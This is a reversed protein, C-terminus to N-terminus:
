IRKRAPCKTHDTFWSCNKCGYCKNIPVGNLVHNAFEPDALLGKGIGAFDVCDNEILFQAQEETRIENVAVVPIIVEKKIRCGSYTMRSCPFGEPVIHTPPNMGFSINLIDIGAKEFAQAAEVGDSSEPQYEGMRVSLMFKEHTKKRIEPLIEMLIRVRNSIDGGYQDTRRNYSADLFKCLTFGHAFHYEAGDFGLDCATVAAQTMNQQMRHIDSVNLDNINLDDCSLQMMVTVGYEHCNGAIQKLVRTNEESWRDTGDVAGFVRTAQIIMLGVGGKAYRTYHELHQKGYFFGNDGHFSFTFMPEMVIRNKINNGRIIITDQLKAM